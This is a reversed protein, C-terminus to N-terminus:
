VTHHLIDPSAAPSIQCQDCRLRGDSSASIGRETCNEFAVVPGVVNTRVKLEIM